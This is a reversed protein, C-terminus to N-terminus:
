SRPETASRAFDVSAGTQKQVRQWWESRLEVGPVVEAPRGPEPTWVPLGPEAFIREIPQRWAHLALDFLGWHVPMLLGSGGLARFSRIAGEPGMHINAWLEDFAGIELMTLDFPGYQRGIDAFGSWEGSDAGYYVRRTPGALVYSAWLTEFRNFLSRGSFHRSPLATIELSGVRVRETWDLEAVRCAAVGLGSLVTGVGLPAIWQAGAAAELGALKRVTGAGLHDYHDHSLLIADIRPLEQLSLPADYFRKPGAWQMPAARKDWVPDILVRTGDIELLTSSHGMWTVRLGSAPATAYIAPDARFPGLAQRPTREERNTMYRQLVKFMMRWDGVSTEVPNVFKKRDRQARQIM